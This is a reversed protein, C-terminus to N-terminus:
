QKETALYVVVGSLLAVMALAPLVISGVGGSQSSAVPMLADLHLARPLEAFWAKLVNGKWALVGAAVVVSVVLAFIQAGWIPRAVKEIAANRRRLQARWWIAGASVMQPVPAQQHAQQFAQAVVVLDSCVRCAEVHGRLEAPCADPWYGQHLLETVEQERACSFPSM